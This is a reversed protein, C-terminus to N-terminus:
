HMSAMFPTGPKAVPNGVPYPSFSLQLWASGPRAILEARAEKEEMEPPANQPCVVISELDWSRPGLNIYLSNVSMM